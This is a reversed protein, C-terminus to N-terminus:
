PAPRDIIRLRDLALRRLSSPASDNKVLTIYYVRAARESRISEYLRGLELQARADGPVAILRRELVAIAGEPDGSAEFRRVASLADGAGAGAPTSLLLAMLLCRLRM